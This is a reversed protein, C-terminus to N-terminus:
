KKEFRKRLNFAFDNSMLVHVKTKTAIQFVAGLVGTNAAWKGKVNPYVGLEKEDSLRIVRVDAVVVSSGGLINDEVANSRVYDIIDLQLRVAEPGAPSTKFERLVTEALTDEFLKKEELNAADRVRATNAPWVVAVEQVAINSRTAVDLANPYTVCGTLGTIICLAFVLRLLRTKM